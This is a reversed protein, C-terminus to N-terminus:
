WESHAFDHGPHIRSLCSHVWSVLLLDFLGKLQEKFYVILFPKRTEGRSKSAGVVQFLKFFVWFVSRKKCAILEEQGRSEM